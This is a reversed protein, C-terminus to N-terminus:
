IKSQRLLEARENRLEQLLVAVQQKGNSVTAGPGSPMPQAQPVLRRSKALVELVDGGRYGNKGEIMDMIAEAVEEPEVWEDNDSLM